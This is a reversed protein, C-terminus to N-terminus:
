EASVLAAISRELEEAASQLKRSRCPLARAHGLIAQARNLEENRTCDFPTPAKKLVHRLHQEVFLKSIAVSLHVVSDKLIGDGDSEITLQARWDEVIEDTRGFGSDLPIPERPNTDFVCWLVLPAPERREHVRLERRLSGLEEQMGSSLRGASPYLFLVARSRSILQDLRGRDVEPLRIRDEFGDVEDLLLREPSRHDEWTSTERRRQWDWDDYGWM